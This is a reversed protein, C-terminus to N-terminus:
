ATRGSSLFGGGRRNEEKLPKGYALEILDGLPRVEWGEPVGGEMRRPFLAQVEASMGPMPLNEANAQVPEFDIFWSKFIAQALAELTLNQRRNLEIKDDLAGLIDAIRSQAWLPLVKLYIRRLESQRIGLVTTGSARALLQLQVFESQMHFKLYGNDILGPKGRLTILRQALAVRRGDLQAVEGLPAETTIVVDGQRPMGRRMWNDYEDPAIFKGTPLIRGNKVVKATVLPIGFATKTPSKRRYDIIAAMCEELPLTRWGAPLEADM